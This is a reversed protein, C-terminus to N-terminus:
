QFRIIINMADLSDIPLRALEIIGTCIQYVKLTNEEDFNM